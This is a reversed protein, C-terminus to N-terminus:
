HWTARLVRLWNEHALKRLDAEPWGLKEILAQVKSADDIAAPPFCGDYDSGLAVHDIGMREVMHELHAAIVDLSTEPELAFDPRTMRVDFIAGVLGGSAAIADLQDDTLNRPMPAVVHAGSHTAVLPANSLRAVDRFGPGNLHSVDIMVGLDNCARVLDRGAASLGSGGEPSAPVRFPVGEGFDNPRSWVIGLSRLGREVLPELEGLGPSLPEAGELHLIAGFPGGALARELDAVSRVVVLSGASEAELAFLLDVVEGTVRASRDFDIAPQPPFEYGDETPRALRAPDDEDEVDQEPVFVAFFGAAIGGERARPLDFHGDESRELLSAGTRWARLLADNHGDVIPVPPVAPRGSLPAYSIAGIVAVSSGPWTSRDRCPM